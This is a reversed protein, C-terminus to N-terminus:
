GKLKVSGGCATLIWIDYPGNTRIWVTQSWAKRDFLLRMDEEQVRIDKHDFKEKRGISNQDESGM